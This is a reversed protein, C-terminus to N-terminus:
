KSKVEDVVNEIDDCILIFKINKFMKILNKIFVSISNNVLIENTQQFDIFNKCILHINFFWVISNNKKSYNQINKEIFAKVIELPPVTKKINTLNFFDFLCFSVDQLKSKLFEYIKFKGETKDSIILFNKSSNKSFDIIKNIESEYFIDILESQKDIKRFCKRLNSPLIKKPDNCKKIIVKSLFNIKGEKIEKSKKISLFNLSQKSNNSDDFLKM